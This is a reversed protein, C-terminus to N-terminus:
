HNCRPRIGSSQLLMRLRYQQRNVEQRLTCCDQSDTIITGLLPMLSPYSVVRHVGAEKRCSKLLQPDSDYRIRKLSYKLYPPEVYTAAFVFSFGGMALQRGVTVKRGTALHVRQTDSWNYRCM